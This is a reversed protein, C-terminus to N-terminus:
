ARSASAYFRRVSAEIIAGGGPNGPYPGRPRMAVGNRKLRQWVGSQSCGLARAIENTSMGFDVYMARLEEFPILGQPGPGPTIAVRSTSARVTM